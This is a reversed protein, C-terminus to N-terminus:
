LMVVLHIQFRFQFDPVKMVLNIMKKRVLPIAKSLYLLNLQVQQRLYSLFPSARRHLAGPTKQLLTKADSLPGPFYQNFRALAPNATPYLTIAQSRAKREWTNAM